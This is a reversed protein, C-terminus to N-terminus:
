EGIELLKGVYNSDDKYVCVFVKMKKDIEVEFTKSTINETKSILKGDKFPSGEYVFFTFPPTGNNITVVIIAKDTNEKWTVSFEIKEDQAKINTLPVIVMTAMIFVFCLMHKM